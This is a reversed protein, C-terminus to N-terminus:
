VLKFLGHKLIIPFAKANSNLHLVCRQGSPWIEYGAALFLVAQAMIEQITLTKKMAKWKSGNAEGSKPSTAESAQAEKKVMEEHEVMNQIFDTRTKVLFM